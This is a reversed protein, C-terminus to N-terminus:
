TVVPTEPSGVWGCMSTSVTSTLMQLHSDKPKILGDLIGFSGYVPLGYSGRYTGLGKVALKATNLRWVTM